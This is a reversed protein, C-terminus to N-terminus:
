YQVIIEPMLQLAHQNTFPTALIIKEHLLPFIIIRKM